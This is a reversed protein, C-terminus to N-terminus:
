EERGSVEITVSTTDVDYERRRHNYRVDREEEFSVTAHEDSELIKGIRQLAIGIIENQSYENM